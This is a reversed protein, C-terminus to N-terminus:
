DYMVCHFQLTIVHSDHNNKLSGVSGIQEQRLLM